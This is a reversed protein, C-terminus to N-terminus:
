RHLTVCGIKILFGGEMMSTMLSALTDPMWDHNKQGGGGKVGQEQVIAHCSFRCREGSARAVEVWPNQFEHKLFEGDTELLILSVCSIVLM